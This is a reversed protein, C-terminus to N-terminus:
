IYIIYVCNGHKRGKSVTQLLAGAECQHSLFTPQIKNTLVKHRKPIMNGSGTILAHASSTHTACVLHSFLTLLLLCSAPDASRPREMWNGRIYYRIWASSTNSDHRLIGPTRPTLTRYLYVCPSESLSRRPDNDRRTRGWRQRLRERFWCLRSAIQQDVFSQRM